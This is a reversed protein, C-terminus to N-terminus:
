SELMNYSKAPSLFISLVNYSLRQRNYARVAPTIATLASLFVLCYDHRKYGLPYLLVM